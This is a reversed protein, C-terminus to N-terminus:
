KRKRHIFYRRIKLCIDESLLIAILIYSTWPIIQVVNIFLDKYYYYFLLPVTLFFYVVTELYKCFTIRKIFKM